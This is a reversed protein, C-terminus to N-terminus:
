NVVSLLTQKLSVFSWNSLIYFCSFAKDMAEYFVIYENEDFKFFSMDVFFDGYFARVFLEPKQNKTKQNMQFAFLKEDELFNGHRFSVLKRFIDNGDNDVTGPYVIINKEKISCVIKTLPQSGFPNEFFLNPDNWFLPDLTLFNEFDFFMKHVDTQGNLKFYVYSHSFDKIGIDIKKSLKVGNKIIIHFASEDKLSFEEEENDKSVFIVNRQECLKKLFLSIKESKALFIKQNVSLNQSEDIKHSDTDMKKAYKVFREDVPRYFYGYWVNEIKKFELSKGNKRLVFSDTELFEKEDLLCIQMSRVTKNKQTIKLAAMLTLIAIFFILISTQSIKFKM